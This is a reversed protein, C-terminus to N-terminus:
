AQGSIRETRFRRMIEAVQELERAQLIEELLLPLKLRWNPYEDKTGPLNQQDLWGFIDELNLLVLRCPTQALHAIVGWKVQDPLEAQAALFQLRMGM